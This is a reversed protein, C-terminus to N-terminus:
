MACLDIVMDNDEEGEYVSRLDLSEDGDSSNGDLNEDSNGDHDPTFDPDSDDDYDFFTFAPDSDHDPISAPDSDDNPLHTLDIVSPPHPASSEPPTSFECPPVWMDM